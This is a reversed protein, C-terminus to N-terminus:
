ILRDSPTNVQRFVRPRPVGYVARRARAGKREDGAIITMDLWERGKGRRTRDRGRWRPNRNSGIMPYCVDVL